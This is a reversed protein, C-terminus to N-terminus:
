ANIDLIGEDLKEDCKKKQPMIPFTQILQLLLSCWHTSFQQVSPKLRANRLDPFIGDIKFGQSGTSIQNYKYKLDTQNARGKAKKNKETSEKSLM